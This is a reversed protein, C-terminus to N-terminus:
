ENPVWNEDRMKKFKLLTMTNLKFVQILSENDMNAFFSGDLGETECADAMDQMRCLQLREVLENCNLELFLKLQDKPTDTMSTPCSPAMPKVVATRSGIPPLAKSGPSEKTMAPPSVKLPNKPEPTYQNEIKKSPFISWKKSKGKKIPLVDIRPTPKLYDSSDNIDQPPPPARQVPIGSEMDEYDAQVSQSGDADPKQGVGARGNAPKRNEYMNMETKEPVPAPPNKRPRHPPLSPPLDPPVIAPVMADDLREYESQEAPDNPLDPRIAPNIARNPPMKRPASTQINEMQEYDGQNAKEDVEPTNAKTKPRQALTPSPSMIEYDTQSSSEEPLKSPPSLSLSAPKNAQPSPQKGRALPAQTSNSPSLSGGDVGPSPPLPKPPKPVPLPGAPQDLQRRGTANAHAADDLQFIKPTPTDKSFEVYITDVVDLSNSINCVNFVREYIDSIDGGDELVNVEIERIEPHDMPLVVLTRKKVKKTDTPGYGEVPKYHGVLVNQSVVRNLQLTETITRMNGIGELIDKTYVKRIEDDIFKVVQPLKFRDVVEKITYEADDSEARFLGTELVSVKAYVPKDLIQFQVVLEGPQNDRGAVVQVLEITTGALIQLPRDDAGIAPQNKCVKAFRPFDEVLERVTSYKIGQNRIKVKGKYNLPVLIDESLREYSREDDGISTAGGKRNAFHAAVKEITLVNDIGIIDDKSFGEAEIDSCYGEALRVVRPFKFRRGLEDLRYSTTSWKFESESTSYAPFSM